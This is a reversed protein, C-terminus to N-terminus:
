AAGGNWIHRTRELDSHTLSYRGRFVTERDKDTVPERRCPIALGKERLTAIADPVNSAGAIRDLEERTRAGGALACIIRIERPNETHFYSAVHGPLGPLPMQGDKTTRM